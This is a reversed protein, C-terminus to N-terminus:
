VFILYVREAVANPGGARRSTVLALAKVCRILKDLTPRQFPYYQAMKQYVNTCIMSECKLAKVGKEDPDVITGKTKSLTAAIHAIYNKKAKTM